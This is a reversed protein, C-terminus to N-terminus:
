SSFSSDPLTRNSQLLLLGSPQMMWSLVVFALFHSDVADALRSFM